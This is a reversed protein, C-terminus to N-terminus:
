NSNSLIELVWLFHWSDEWFISMGPHHDLCSIEARSVFQAYGVTNECSKYLPQKLSIARTLIELEEIRFPEALRTALKSKFGSKAVMGKKKADPVKMFFYEIRERVCVCMELFCDQATWAGGGLDFM